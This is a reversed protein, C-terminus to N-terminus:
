LGYIQFLCLQEEKVNTLNKWHADPQKLFKFLDIYTVESAVPEKDKPKRVQAALLTLENHLVWQKIM